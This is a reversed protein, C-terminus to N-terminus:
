ENNEKEKEKEREKEKETEKEKEKEKEEQIKKQKEIFESYIKAQQQKKAFDRSANDMCERIISYRKQNLSKSNKQKEIEDHNDKVGLFEKIVLTIDGKHRELGAIAEERTYTTQSMTIEIFREYKQKQLNKYYENILQQKTKPMDIADKDLDNITSTTETTSIIKNESNDFKERNEYNECNECNESNHVNSVEKTDNDPSEICANDTLSEM